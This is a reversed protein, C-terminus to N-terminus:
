FVPVSGLICRSGPMGAGERDRQILGGTGFHYRAGISFTTAELDSDDFELRDLGGRVSFPSGTFMYEAAAGFGYAESDDSSLVSAHGEIAFSSSGYLRGYGCGGVTSDAEDNDFWGVAGGFTWSDRYLEGEGGFGFTTDTEEADLVSGFGGLAYRSSDRKFIHLDGAITEFEGGGNEGEMSTFDANAQLNLDGGLSNFYAGELQFGDAEGDGIGTEVDTQAYGGGVYGSVTSQASAGVGLVLALASGAAARALISQM